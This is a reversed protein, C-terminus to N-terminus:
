HAGDDHAGDSVQGEDVNDIQTALDNNPGNAEDVGTQGVQADNTNANETQTTVQNNSGNPEDAAIAMAVGPGAIGLVVVAGLSSLSKRLKTM